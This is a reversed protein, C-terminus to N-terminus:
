FSFQSLTIRQCCNFKVSTIYQPVKDRYSLIEMLNKYEGKRRDVEGKLQVAHGQPKGAYETIAHKRGKTM